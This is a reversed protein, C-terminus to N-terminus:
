YTTVNFFLVCVCVGWGFLVFLFIFFCLGWSELLKVIRVIKKVYDKSIEM